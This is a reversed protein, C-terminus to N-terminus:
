KGSEIAAALQQFAEDVQEGTKASTLLWPAAFSNAVAELRLSEIVQQDALDAKNGAMVLSAGAELKRLQDAYAQLMDLTDPRTVDCVLLAGAAGRLYSDSLHSFEDGGALDWILFDLRYGDRQLSKRSINVGITSLYKEDFRGEVYRRILSSKGVAFDGLLCVKKKVVRM